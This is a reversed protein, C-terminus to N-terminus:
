VRGLMVELVFRSGVYALLLAAFGAFTGHLAARGRWGYALRGLLLVAFICWALLGFITKHDFTLARGFIEESFVIGSVVTLSLFAFGIGLVQFLLREMTLLPPLGSPVEGDRGGSRRSHLRREMVAMMVAHAAAIAMFAYALMAILVHAVFAPAQAKATMLTGGFLAPLMVSLAAPPLVLAPMGELPHVLSEVGYFILALLAMMSLAHAFGFRFQGSGFTAYALLFAHLVVAVALLLREWWEFGSGASLGGHREGVTVAGGSRWRTTWFHVALGAYLLAALGHLLIVSTM